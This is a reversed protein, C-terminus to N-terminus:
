LKEKLLKQGLCEEICSNTYKYMRLRTFYSSNYLESLSNEKINGSIGLETFYKLSDCPYAVGDYGIIMIEDALKCPRNNIELINLPSGLNIYNKYPSNGYFDKLTLYDEKKLNMSEDGRGHPVFRLLKIQKFYKRNKFLEVIENIYDM